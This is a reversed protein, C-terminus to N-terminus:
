KSTKHQAKKASHIPLIPPSANPYKRKIDWETLWNKFEEDTKVMEEWKKCGINEIEEKIFPYLKKRKQKKEFWKVWSPKIFSPEILGLIFSIAIPSFYLVMFIRQFFDSTNHFGNPLLIIISTMLLFIAAGLAVSNNWRFRPHPLEFYWCKKRGSLAGYAQYFMFLSGILSILGWFVREMM